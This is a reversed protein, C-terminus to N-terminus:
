ALCETFEGVLKEDVTFRECEQDLQEYQQSFSSRFVQFAEEDRWRDVTIYRGVSSKDKLLLTEIYGASSRFLQAWTGGPGYHQEFESQLDLSVHFEWVYAYSM